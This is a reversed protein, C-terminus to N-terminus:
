AAQQPAAQRTMQESPRQPQGRQNQQPAMPNAAPPSGGGKAGTALTYLLMTSPDEEFMYKKFTKFGGGMLELIQGMIYNIVMPTKPNPISGVMGLLGSWTKIKFNKSEETELAQSVPKFKDKRKPNYAMADEKGILEELTEPLMFDNCLTLLMDYFETFGIFELNMSKMGIRVNARQNVISAVTATEAREPSAGMTQPATAMCYDMRSSLLSQHQLGGAINDEIKFEQLDEMNEVDIAKEPTIRVNEDVGSFRKRKFAPTIALKTRYNMLNYNDNIAKQLERNVEGDGFGSDKIMDVYCLFRVMPRKTHRSKRFGIIHNPEDKERAKVYHVICEENTADESFSGDKEFGPIFKGDKEIVPYKGWRELVVFTKLPPKPQEEIQGEKNYTTEGRQGEPNEKELLNLNFYGMEEAEDKLADLTKETEFIVYEKDNLSYAYEPSMYTNTIPYVDFTPKDAVVKDMWQPEKRTEFAPKQITPDIYPTGDEALYNGTLPDTVYDSVQKYHSLEKALRQQYGGKIVGSGCTFVYMINRVTKYYYYAEKDNLLTNLLKRSAKAEAVDKPDDSENATDVYDASAFYQAVFNGVQTLLRSEFEPLFIDSEWENPKAERVGHLMDYYANFDQTLAENNRKAVAFEESVHSLLAQQIDEPVAWDSKVEKEKKSKAM